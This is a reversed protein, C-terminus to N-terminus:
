SLTKVKWSRGVVSNFVLLTLNMESQLLKLYYSIYYFLISSSFIHSVSLSFTINQLGFIGANPLVNMGWEKPYLWVVHLGSGARWTNTCVTGEENNPIDPQQATGNQSIDEAM